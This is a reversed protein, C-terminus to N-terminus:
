LRVHLIQNCKPEVILAPLPEQCEYGFTPANALSTLQYPVFYGLRPVALDPKLSLGDGLITIFNLHFKEPSLIYFLLLKM